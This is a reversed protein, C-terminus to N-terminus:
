DLMPAVIDWGDRGRINWLWAYGQQVKNDTAIPTLLDKEGVSLHISVAGSNWAWLIWALISEGSKQWYSELFEQLEQPTYTQTVQVGGDLLDQQAEMQMLPEAEVVEKDALDPEFEIESDLPGM